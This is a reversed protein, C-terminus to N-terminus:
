HKVNGKKQLKNQLDQVQDRDGSVTITTDDTFLDTQSQTYLPLDNIFTLFLLRGLISGQPVGDTIEQTTSSM